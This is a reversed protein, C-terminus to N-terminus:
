GGRQRRQQVQLTLRSARYLKGQIVQLVYRSETVTSTAAEGAIVINERLVGKVKQNIELATRWGPQEQYPLAQVGLNGPYLASTPPPRATVPAVFQHPAFAVTLVVPGRWDDLGNPGAASLGGRATEWYVSENFNSIYGFPLKAPNGMGVDGLIWNIERTAPSMSLVFALMDLLEELDKNAPQPWPPYTPM